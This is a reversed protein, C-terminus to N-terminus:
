ARANRADGTAGQQVAHTSQQLWQSVDPSSLAFAGTDLQVNSCFSHFTAMTDSVSRRWDAFSM